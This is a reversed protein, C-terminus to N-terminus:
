DFTPASGDPCVCDQQARGRAVLVFALFILGRLRESRLVIAM